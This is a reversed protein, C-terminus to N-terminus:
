SRAGLAILTAKQAATLGQVDTINIEEYPRPSRLLKQTQGTELDWQRITGDTSSSVLTQRDPTLAIARVSAEHGQLVQICRGTDVSWIRITSDISSSIITNGESDFVLDLVNDTHGAFTQILEGTQVDWLKILKGDGGALMRGNPHFVVSMVKNLPDSLNLHCEGTEVDWIKITTDASGSALLKGNPSFAIAWIWFSHAEICRLNEGTAADWFCITGDHGGDALLKGDPSLKVTWIRIHSKLTKRCRQTSVDWLKITEDESCSALTQGDPSFDVMWIWSDHRGTSILRGSKLDWIRVTKDSSGSALLRGDPSIATTLMFDTYGQWTKVCKGEDVDWLKLVQNNDGTALINKDTAFDVTIIGQDHGRLTKLCEGTRINWIKITRDNSGSALIQGDGRFALCSVEKTHGELTKLCEGTEVDWIKITRDFSSSALIKGSPHFDVGTLIHQHGQLINLCEGTDTDWLRVSCDYSASALIRGESGKDLLSSTPIPQFALSWVWSHHGPLVRCEDTQINWLNVTSDEGGSAVTQGDPSFAVSWIWQQKGTFTKWCKGTNTSWLKVKSDISSSALMQGDPSFALDTVFLLDKGHGELYLYPQRDELRFLRIGGASDGVAFLEGDPSFAIAHVGGFDQTLSSNAFKCGSFNVRQLNLDQLDAQWIALQSFDYGELDIGAHRMLNLLNGATYGPIQRNLNALLKDLQNKLSNQSERGLTENLRDIIPQLILRIQNDKVYDKASAKILAHSNFLQLTGSELEQCVEKIARESIYEMLVPQLTFRPLATKRSLGNRLSHTPRSRRSSAGRTPNGANFSSDLAPTEGMLSQRLVRDGSKELPIQREIADLTEPLYKQAVPSFLDEKLDAVSVAERNLALWYMINKEAATLRDFHWDLLKRIEGFVMLDHRLFESLNGAFRNLIHRATIELALPNGSHFSVLDSWDSETGQFNANNARAIDQFIARGAAIDLGNLELSRVLHIGSWDELDIPKVRSTLLVCSQHESSGIRQFFDGYREYGSRYAEQRDGQLISEVNDLILLCRSQKLYQLLQTILGDTTAAFETERNDAVFEILETLLIELPPANFLSRWILYEFEDRIQRALQLSLDTKGIGGRVLSTKGIGAFGVINILRCRDKVIWQELTVLEPQRGHFTPVDPADGWDERLYHAVDDTKVGLAQCFAKFAHDRIPSGELLRERTSKSCGNAYLGLEEWNKGPELIKSAALSWRDDSMNWGQRAIESKIKVLGRQSVKISAM